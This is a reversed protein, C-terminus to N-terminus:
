EAKEAAQLLAKAEKYALWVIVDDPSVDKALPRREDAPLPKMKAATDAFFKRAEATKGQRFLSMTHFFRATDQVHPTNGGPQEAIKLAEDAAAYSGQRYEAMGLAMQYHRSSTYRADVQRARRAATVVADLLQPDSSPLLCYEKASREAAAPANNTAALALLWRCTAAHDAGRAFWAQLITIKLAVQEVLYTEKPSSSAFETLLSHAEDMRGCDGYSEAMRLVELLTDSHAPGFKKRKAALTEVRLKLADEHRFTRAYSNALRSKAILTEAHEPGLVTAYGKVVDEEMKVGDNQRGERLYAKALHAMARLTDPHEPGLAALYYDRAM